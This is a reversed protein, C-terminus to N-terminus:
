MATCELFLKTQNIKFNINVWLLTNPNLIFMRLPFHIWAPWWSADAIDCTLEICDFKMTVHKLISNFSVFVSSKVQETDHFIRCLYISLSELPDTNSAQSHTHWKVRAACLVSCLFRVFWVINRKWRVVYNECQVWDTSKKCMWRQPSFFCMSVNASKMQCCFSNRQHTVTCIVLQVVCNYICANCAKEYNPTSNKDIYNEVNFWILGFLFQEFSLFIITRRRM